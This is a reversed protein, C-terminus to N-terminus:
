CLDRDVVPVSITHPVARSDSLCEATVIRILSNLVTALQKEEAIVVPSWSRRIGNAAIGFSCSDITLRAASLYNGSFQCLRSNVLFDSQQCITVPNRYSIPTSRWLHHSLQQHSPHTTSRIRELTSPAHAALTEPASKGPVTLPCNAVNQIPHVIM